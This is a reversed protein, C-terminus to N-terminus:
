LLYVVSSDRRLQFHLFREDKLDGAALQTFFSAALQRSRALMTPPATQQLSRGIFFTRM